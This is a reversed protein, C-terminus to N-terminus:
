EEEKSETWRRAFRSSKWPKPLIATGKLTVYDLNMTRHRLADAAKSGESEPAWGYTEWRSPAVEEIRDFYALMRGIVPVVLPCDFAVTVKVAPANTLELSEAPDIRVQNEIHSSSPIPEASWWGPIGFASSGGEPSSSVAALTRCAAEWCVGKTELFGGPNGSTGEDDRYEAPHYVLAARAANYAAYHTMLQAYWILSFQVISFILTVLLPLALLCEMLVTGRRKM